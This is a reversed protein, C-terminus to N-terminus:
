TKKRADVVLWGKPYDNYGEDLTWGFEYITQGILQDPFHSVFPTDVSSFWEYYSKEIRVDYVPRKKSVPTCCPVFLILLLLLIYKM